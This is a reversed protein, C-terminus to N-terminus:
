EEKATTEPEEPEPPLGSSTMKADEVAKEAQVLISSLTVGYAAQIAGLAGQPNARLDDLTWIGARHLERNVLQPTTELKVLRAFNFGYPVGAQPDAVSKNGEDDEEIEDAKVWSRHFDGHKLWEVLSMGNTSSIVRVKQSTPSAKKAM